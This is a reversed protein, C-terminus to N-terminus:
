RWAKHWLRNVSGCGDRRRAFGITISSRSRYLLGSRNRYCNNSPADHSLSIAHVM